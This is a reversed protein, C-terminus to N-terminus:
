TEDRAELIQEADLAELIDPPVGELAARPLPGIVEVGVVDIGRARAGDRVAAYATALSTRAYDTLNMTVQTQGRNPLELGLARLAPLGGSSARIARAIARAGAPDPTGLNVNFRVLPGRVGTIVAGATPHPESPGADPAWAPDRMRDALGEFGGSRVDPLARREPRTAAAEYYYVPVGCEGVWAGFRRCRQLAIEPDLGYLAVFPVVDLVGLRPHQGLHERLDLRAFVEEALRRSAELVSDPDGVYALVMRNHDPDASCHILRIGPTSRVVSAFADVRDADRGESVNPECLLRGTM